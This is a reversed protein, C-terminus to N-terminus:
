SDKEKLLKLTLQSYSSIVRKLERLKRRIEPNTDEAEYLDNVLGSDFKLVLPWLGAPELLAKVGAAEFGTKEVTRFSLAHESGYLRKYKNLVCFEIIQVRLKEIQAELDKKQAQLDAYQEVVEGAQRGTLIRAAPSDPAEPPAFKHKFYPCYEPFDCYPCLNNEQPDFERNLIGQAVDLIMQWAEELRESPRGPCSVPTNSRLHYLTLKKVPIKWMSEVALQYFTLQLDQELDDLTFLNQNTKYDMIALGGEIKDIRDIKGGLFIGEDVKIRFQKEIALPMKFVPFNLNWFDRLLQRGYQRYHEEQEPSEYGESRWTQEYFQLLKDLSPPPPVSVKFFYEACQHIVDGFSFYYREKTPLNEIYQLKYWLPCTRYRNVQTYSLPKM